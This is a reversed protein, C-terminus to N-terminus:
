NDMEEVYETSKGLDTCCLPSIEKKQPLSIFDLAKVEV